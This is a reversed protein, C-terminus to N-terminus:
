RVKVKRDYFRNALETAFARYTESRITREEVGYRGVSDPPYSVDITTKYSPGANPDAADYIKVAASIRGRYLHPSEPERISYRAVEIMMVRDAGFRKGFTSPHAREWDADAQQADFVQRGPVVTLGKVHSELEARVHEAIELQVYPYEFRADMDAWVTIVLKKDSLYPYEAPVPKTPEQGWMLWPIAM